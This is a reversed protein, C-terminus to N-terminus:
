IEERVITRLADVYGTPHIELDLLALLACFRRVEGNLMKSLQGESIGLETALAARKGANALAAQIRDVSDQASM